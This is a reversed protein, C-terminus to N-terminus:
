KKPADGAANPTDGAPQTTRSKVAAKTDAKREARDVSGGKSKDAKDDKMESADGAPKLAGAKRDSKTTDKREMRTKDSMTSPTSAIPGEGAPAMSGSKAAPKNENAGQAFSAQAFVALAAAAVASLVFHTKM